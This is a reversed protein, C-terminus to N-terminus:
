LTSRTPSVTNYKCSRNRVFIDGGLFGAYGASPLVYCWNLRLGSVESLLLPPPLLKILCSLLRRM